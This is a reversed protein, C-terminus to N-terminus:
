LLGDAMVSSCVASTSSASLESDPELTMTLLFSALILELPSGNALFFLLWDLLDTTICLLSALETYRDEM